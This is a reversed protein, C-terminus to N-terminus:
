SFIHERILIHNSAELKIISQQFYWQNELLMKLFPNLFPLLLVTGSTMYIDKTRVQEWKNFQMTEELKLKQTHSIPIHYSYKRSCHSQSSLILLYMSLRSIHQLINTAMTM